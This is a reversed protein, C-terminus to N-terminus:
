PAAGGHGEAHPASPAPPAGADDRTPRVNGSLPGDLDLETVCPRAQFAGAVCGDGGPGFCARLRGTVLTATVTDIAVAVAGPRGVWHDSAHTEFMASVPSEANPAARLTGVALAQARPFRVLIHRAHAPESAACLRTARGESLILDVRARAERRDVRFWAERLTFRAGDVDGSVASAPAVGLDLSEPSVNTTASAGQCSAVLAAAAFIRRRM